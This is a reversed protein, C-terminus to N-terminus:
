SQAHNNSNNTNRPTRHLEGRKDRKVMEAILMRYQTRYENYARQSEQMSHETDQIKKLLEQNTYGALHMQFDLTSNYANSLSNYGNKTANTVVNALSKMTPKESIQNIYDMMPTSLSRDWHSILPGAFFAVVISAFGIPGSALLAAILFCVDQGIRATKYKIHFRSSIIPAIADYPAVGLSPAMYLSSGATFMLLGLILDAILVLATVKGPFMTHYISSFWQIEFGVFVMNMITGIGIKKRDLFFVFIFIVLNAGLQYVGLTTHLKTAMGINLATFPDLGLIPSAKLLAAGMSLIAIGVFSMLTRLLVNLTRGWVSLNQQATPDSTQSSQNEM